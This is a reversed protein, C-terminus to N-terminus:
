LLSVKFSASQKPESGDEPSVYTPIPTYVREQVAEQQRGPGEMSQVMRYTPSNALNLVKPEFNIQNGKGITQKLTEIANDKSYLGVPSNYQLHVQSKEAVKPDIQQVYKRYSEEQQKLVHPPIPSTSGHIPADAYNQMLLYSGQVHDHLTKPKPSVVAQSRYPSTKIARVEHLKQDDYEMKEHAFQDAPDYRRVGSPIPSRPLAPIPSYSDSYPTIPRSACLSSSPRSM